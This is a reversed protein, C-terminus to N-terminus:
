LFCQLEPRKILQWDGPAAEIRSPRRQPGLISPFRPKKVKEEGEKETRISKQLNCFFFCLLCWTSTLSLLALPFPLLALVLMVWVKIKPLFNIRVRKSELSRPEKVRVGLHKMYTYIVYQITTSISFLYSLLEGLCLFVINSNSSFMNDMNHSRGYPVCLRGQVTEVYAM